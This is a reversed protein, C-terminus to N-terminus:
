AWDPIYIVPTATPEPTPEESPEPTPIFVEPTATPEPEPTPIFVEPEPTAGGVAEYSLADHRETYFSLYKTQIYGDQRNYRVRTWKSGRSLVIVATKKKLKVLTKANTRAKAYMPVTSKGKIKAQQRLETDTVLRYPTDGFEAKVAAARKIIAKQLSQNAKGTVTYDYASQFKKVAASMGAGYIGDVDGVYLKLDALARQLTAVAPGSEGRALTVYTGTPAVDAFIQTWLVDTVVGTKKVGAASQFRKVGTETRPGFKGDASDDLFGLARLRKQLQTVRDGSSGRALDNDVSSEDDDYSARGLYHDYTESSVSFSRGLLKKRLSNNKKGSKYIKCRTGAKCNLAIWKADDVRLRICGHSAPSGLANVSGRTPGQKAQTFIVSHFLIGGVIRTAWKAYCTFKPFYYWETRESSYKKSPLTYTGQPTPTGSKGSSCIMQRVIGAESTKGNKYVTVIQNTLDITIYYKAAAQATQDMAPIVSALLCLLTVLCLIRKLRM